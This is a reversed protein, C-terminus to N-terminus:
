MIRRLKLFSKNQSVFYIDIKFLSNKLMSKEKIHFFFLSCLYDHFSCWCLMWCSQSKLYSCGEGRRGGCHSWTVPPAFPIKLASNGSHHGMYQARRQGMCAASFSTKEKLQITSPFTMFLICVSLRRNSKVAEKKRWFSISFETVQPYNCYDCSSINGAAPVSSSWPFHSGFYTVKAGTTVALAIVAPPFHIGQCFEGQNTIQNFFTQHLSFPVNTPM